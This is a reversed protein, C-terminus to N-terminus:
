SRPAPHSQEDDRALQKLSLHLQRWDERNQAWRCFVLRTSPLVGPVSLRCAVMLPSVYSFHCCVQSLHEESNSFGPTIPKNTAPNKVESQNGRRSLRWGQKHTYGLQWQRWNKQRRSQWWYNVVVLVTLASQFWIALELVFLAVLVLGHYVLLILELGAVPQLSFKETDPSCRPEPIESLRSM